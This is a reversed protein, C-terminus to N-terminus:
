DPSVGFTVTIVDSPSFLIKFTFALFSIFPSLTKTSVPPPPPNPLGVSLDISLIFSSMISPYM